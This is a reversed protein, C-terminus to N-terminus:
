TLGMSLLWAGMAVLVVGGFAAIRRGFSTTKELLVLLSLLVM